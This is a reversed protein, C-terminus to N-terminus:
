QGYNDPIVTFLRFSTKTTRMFFAGNIVSIDSAAIEAFATFCLLVSVALSLIVTRNCYLIM